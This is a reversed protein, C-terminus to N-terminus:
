TQAVSTANFGFYPLPYVYNTASIFRVNSIAISGSISTSNTGTISGIGPVSVRTSAAGWISPAVFPQEIPLFNTSAGGAFPIAGQVDLRRVNTYVNTRTSSTLYAVALYYLGPSFTTNVPISMMQATATGQTTWANSSVTTTFEASASAYLSLTSANRTYIGLYASLSWGRSSNNNSAQTHQLSIIQNFENASLNFPISVPYITTSSPAGIPVLSFLNFAQDSGYAWGWPRFDNATLGGAGAATGGSITITASSGNISQSLTINNGGVMIMQMQPGSIVGSTGSTNGLNSIGFTNSEVTQNAASITITASSANISQSLTINNGGALVMQLQPGTIVGSTGSTNGINSIGFTNTEATLTAGIITITHSAGNVSQSLTVNNGGVFAMRWNTSTAFGTTGATNGNTSIGIARTGESAGVVTVSNGAQSLTIRNGGALYFTGTSIDALVGSTNGSLSVALGAAGGSEGIISISRGNQSLTINNGGMLYATGSSVLTLVGDTNGSLSLAIMNQTQVTQNAASVTVSQANQSLTINNGGALNLTGSSVLALAGSTNGSLSLALLNQTQVTQNAASITITATSGNISQSLTVNNGGALLLRVNPGSIVGSTGSTNGLNSIGFTNSNTSSNGQGFQVAPGNM